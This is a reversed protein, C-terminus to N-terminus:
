VFIFYTHNLFMKVAKYTNKLQLTQRWKIKINKKDSM